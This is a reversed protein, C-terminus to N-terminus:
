AAGRLVKELYPLSKDMRYDVATHNDPFEEYTHAIGLRELARHLRRAGYQLTFQDHDGCDIYLGKLRRLNEAYTDALLAPDWALWNRWREPILEATYLDVPMRIGLFCSPDPDYSASMALLNIVAIEDESPKPAVEFHAMFKEISRGHKALENLVKPVDHLYCMEFGMDGSHCAAAAWVDARRMGHTIAGFGGSSKGFIARNGAGGCSFRREVFPVIEDILYDEYRGIAASNIYQNGGLRSYCDPFAVVVPGMKGEGILRDLREPVNETFAKWNTHGMGSGTFGVVDVLLPLKTGEKYGHPTYVHLEREHPDGLLNGALVESTLSIRHVQGQPVARNRRM